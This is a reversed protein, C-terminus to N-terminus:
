QWLINAKSRSFTHFAHPNHWWLPADFSFSYEFSHPFADLLLTLQCQMVWNPKAKTQINNTSWSIFQFSFLLFARLTSLTPTCSSGTDIKKSNAILKIEIETRMQIPEKKKRKDKWESEREGENRENDYKLSKMERYFRYFPWFYPYMFFSSGFFRTFSGLLVLITENFM